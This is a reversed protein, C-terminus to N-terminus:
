AGSCVLRFGGNKRHVATNFHAQGEGDRISCGTPVTNRSNGFKKVISTRPSKGAAAQIAKAAAGCEKYSPSRGYDCKTAGPPALHFRVFKWPLKKGPCTFEQSRFQLDGYCSFPGEKSGKQTSCQPTSTTYEWSCYCTSCGRVELLECKYRCDDGNEESPIYLDCKCNTPCASQDRAYGCSGARLNLCPRCDQRPEIADPPKASTQNVLNLM